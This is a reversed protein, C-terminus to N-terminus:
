CFYPAARPMSLRSPSHCEAFRYDLTPLIGVSNASCLKVFDSQCELAPDCGGTGVENKVEVFACVPQPRGQIYDARITADPEFWKGDGLDVKSFIMADGHVLDALCPRLASMRYADNEYCDRSVQIFKSTWQLIEENGDFQLFARSLFKAFVPHYIQIPPGALHIPRENRVADQRTSKQTTHSLKADSSPSKRQRAAEVIKKRDSGAILFRPPSITAM